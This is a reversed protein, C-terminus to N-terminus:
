LNASISTLFMDNEGEYFLKYFSNNLDKRDKNKNSVIVNKRNPNATLKQFVDLRKRLGTKISLRRDRKTKVMSRSKRKTNTNNDNIFMLSSYDNPFNGLIDNLKREDHLFNCRSGYSCYGLKYFSECKKQKYNYCIQKESLEVKGHAFRCKNNYRCQGMESYSKCLETKYKQRLPKQDTGKKIQIKFGLLEIFDNSKSPKSKKIFCSGQDISNQQM